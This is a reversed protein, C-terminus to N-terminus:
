IPFCVLVSLASSSSAFAATDVYGGLCPVRRALQATESPGGLSVRVSCCRGLEKSAPRDATSSSVCFLLRFAEACIRHRVM